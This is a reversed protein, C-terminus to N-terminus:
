LWIYGFSANGSTFHIRRYTYLPRQDNQEQNSTFQHM